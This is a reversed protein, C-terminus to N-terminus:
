RTIDHSYGFLFDDELEIGFSAIYVRGNNCERLLYVLEDTGNLVHGFLKDVGAICRLSCGLGGFFDSVRGFVRAISQLRGRTRPHCPELRQTLRDLRRTQKGEHEAHEVWDDVSEQLVLLDRVGKPYGERGDTYDDVVDHVKCNAQAM